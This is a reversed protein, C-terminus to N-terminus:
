KHGLARKGLDLLEKLDKGEQYKGGVTGYIAGGRYCPSDENVGIGLGERGAKFPEIDVVGPVDLALYKDLMGVEYNVKDGPRPCLPGLPGPPGIGLMSMTQGLTFEGFDKAAGPAHGVVFGLADGLPDGSHEDGQERRQARTLLPPVPPLSFPNGGGVAPMPVGFTLSRGLAGGAAGLGSLDGATRLAEDNWHEKAQNARHRCRDIEQEEREIERQAVARDQNASDLATLATGQQAAAGPHGAAAAANAQDLASQASSAAQEAEQARQAARARRADAEQAHALEQKAVRKAEALAAAARRLAQAGRHMANAASGAGAAEITAGQGFAYAGLSSWALTAPAGSVQAQVRELSGSVSEAAAAGAELGGPSGPPIEIGLDSM